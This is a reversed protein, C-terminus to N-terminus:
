AQFNSPPDAKKSSNRHKKTSINRSNNSSKRSKLPRHSDLFVVIYPVRKARALRNFYYLLEQAREIAFTPILLNGGASITDNVVKCLRDEIGQPNDHNRDGYTSEM